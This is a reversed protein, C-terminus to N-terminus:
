PEQYFNIKIKSSYENLHRYINDIVVISNDVLMGVGLALGMLSIINLTIGKVFLLAFTFIVSIPIAIAVVLTARINKLFVLLVISALIIGTLANNYVSSISQNIQVSNDQALIFDINEPLNNKTKDMLAIINEAIKVTNGEKTKVIEIRVSEKGNQRAYSEIDKISLKVDAVDSIRVTKGETNSVVINKIQEITEIEGRVKVVFEKDGEMLNGLPM